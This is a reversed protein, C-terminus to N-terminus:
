NKNSFKYMLSIHFYSEVINRFIIISKRTIYIVPIKDHNQVTCFLDFKYQLLGALKQVELFIFSKTHLYFGGGTAYAGEDM